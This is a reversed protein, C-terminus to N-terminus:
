WKTLILIAVFAFLTHHDSSFFICGGDAQSTHLKSKTNSPSSMACFTCNTCSGSPLLLLRFPISLIFTKCRRTACNAFINLEDVFALTLFDDVSVKCLAHFTVLQYLPSWSVFDSILAKADWKVQNRCSIFRKLTYNWIVYSIHAKSLLSQSLETGECLLHWLYFMVGLSIKLYFVRSFVIYINTTSCYSQKVM